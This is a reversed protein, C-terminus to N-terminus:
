GPPTILIASPFAFKLIDPGESQHKQPQSDREVTVHSDPEASERISSEANKFDADSEDIHMGEEASLNQEFEKRL